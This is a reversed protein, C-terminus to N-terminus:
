LRKFKVLLPTRVLRFGVHRYFTLKYRSSSQCNVSFNQYYGGRAVRASGTNPGRPDTSPSEAYYNESYWDRCLEMVNGHMDYLGWANPQYSGVAVPERLSPIRSKRIIDQCNAQGERFSDGFAFATTTGARCAYEWEAETPLHYVYGDYKANLKHIFHMVDKWSVDIVPLKKGKFLGPNSGMVAKWQEQTVEYKSMEFGRSIRVRHVPKEDAGGNESGMMFEGAPIKVFSNRLQALTRAKLDVSAPRAKPAPRTGAPKKTAKDTSKNLPAGPPPSKPGVQRSM